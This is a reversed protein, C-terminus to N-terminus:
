RASWLARVSLGFGVSPTLSSSTAISFVLTPSITKDSSGALVRRARIFIPIRVLDRIDPGMPQLWDAHQWLIQGTYFNGSDMMDLLHLSSNLQPALYFACVYPLPASASVAAAVTLSGVVTLVTAEVVATPSLRERPVAVDAQPDSASLEFWDQRVYTWWRRPNQGSKRTNRLAM